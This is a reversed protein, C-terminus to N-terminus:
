LDLETKVDRGFLRKPKPFYESTHVIGKKNMWRNVSNDTKGNSMYVYREMKRKKEQNSKKVRFETQNTKKLEKKTFCELLKKVM